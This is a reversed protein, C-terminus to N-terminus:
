SSLIEDLGLVKQSAVYMSDTLDLYFENFSSKFIWINESEIMDGPLSNWDTTIRQTFFHKRCNLHSFHKYNYNTVM